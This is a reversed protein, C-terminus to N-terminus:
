PCYFGGQAGSPGHIAPYEAVNTSSTTEAQHAVPLVARTSSGNQPTPVVNSCAIPAAVLGNAKVDIGIGDKSRTGLEASCRNVQSCEVGGDGGHLRECRGPATSRCRLPPM